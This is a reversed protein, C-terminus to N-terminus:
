NNNTDRKSLRALSAGSVCLPVCLAPCKYIERSVTVTECKKTVFISRRGVLNSVTFSTVIYSQM